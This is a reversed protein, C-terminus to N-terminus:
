QAETRQPEGPQNDDAHDAVHNQLVLGSEIPGVVGACVLWICRAHPLLTYCVDGSSPENGIKTLSLMLLAAVGASMCITARQARIKIYSRVGEGM